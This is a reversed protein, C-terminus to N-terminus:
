TLKLTDTDSIFGNGIGLVKRYKESVKYGRTNCRHAAIFNLCFVM